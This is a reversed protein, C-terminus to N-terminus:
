PTRSEATPLSVVFCAGQPANPRYSVRGGHAEALAKVIALGFGVSGEGEQRFPEWISGVEDEPVGPGHDRVELDVEGDRKATAIAFPAKGYRLSNAALNVVIQELRGPDARVTIEPDIHVDFEGGVYSVAQRVADALRVEQISLELRGRELRALDLLDAALRELRGAQRDATTLLENLTQDEMRHRHGLMMRLTGRIATLPGRVDHALTSVMRSRIHDVRRAEELAEAVLQRQRVMGRAMLGAVLAILLGIGMRFTISNWLLEYGYTSSGYFERGVYLGTVVAWAGLAGGLQFKIAGELPLIFLVAWLASGSDFAWLWVITEAVLVDMALTAWALRRVQPFAPDRRLLVWAGLNGAALIGTVAYAIPQILGSPYPAERYFTVQVLAFAVGAWRVLIMSRESRVLDGRRQDDLTGARERDTRKERAPAPPLPTPPGDVRTAENRM